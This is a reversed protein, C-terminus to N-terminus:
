GVIQFPNPAAGGLGFPPGKDCSVLRRPARRAGKGAYNVPWPGARTLCGGTITVRRRGASFGAVRPRGPTLFQDTLALLRGAAWLDTRSSLEAFDDLSDWTPCFTWFHCSMPLSGPRRGTSRYGGQLDVRDTAGVGGSCGGLKLGAVDDAVGHEVVVGREPCAAWALQDTLETKTLGEYAERAQKHAEPGDAM